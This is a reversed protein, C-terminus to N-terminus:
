EWGIWGLPQNGATLELTKPYPPELVGLQASRPYKGLKMRSIIDAALEPDKDEVLGILTQYLTGVGFGIRAMECTRVQDAVSNFPKQFGPQLKGALIEEKQLAWRSFEALTKRIPVSIDGGSIASELGIAEFREEIKRRSGSNLAAVMQPTIAISGKLKSGTRIAEAFITFSKPAMYGARNQSYTNVEVLDLINERVPMFDSVQLFKFIDTQPNPKGKGEYDFIGNAYASGFWKKNLRDRSEEMVVRIFRPDERAFKWLFATRIAGKLSSGPIYPAGNTRVAERIDQPNNSKAGCLVKYHIIANIDLKEAEIIDGLCFDRDGIANILNDRGKESLAHFLKTQDIRLLYSFGSTKATRILYEGLGYMQGTGIHVPTKIGITVDAM